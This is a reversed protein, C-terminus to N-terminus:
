QADIIIEIRYFMTTNKHTCAVPFHVMWWKHKCVSNFLHAISGTALSMKQTPSNRTAQRWRDNEIQRRKVNHISKVNPLADRPYIATNELHSLRLSFQSLSSKIQIHVLHPCLASMYQSEGWMDGGDELSYLLSTEWIDLDTHTLAHAYTRAHTCTRLRFLSFALTCYTSM